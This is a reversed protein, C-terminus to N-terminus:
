FGLQTDTLKSLPTTNGLLVVVIVKVILSEIGSM